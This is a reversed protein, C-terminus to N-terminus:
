GAGGAVQGGAVRALDSAIAQAAQPRYLERARQGMAVVGDAAAAVAGDTALTDDSAKLLRTVERRVVERTFARQEVVLAAGARALVQANHLQHDDTHWPYPVILSARGLAMVECLTM